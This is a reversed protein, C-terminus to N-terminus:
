VKEPSRKTAEIQIDQATDCTHKKPPFWKPVMSNQCNNHEFPLGINSWRRWHKNIQTLVSSPLTLHGKITLILLWNESGSHCSFCSYSSLPAAPQKFKRHPLISVLDPKTVDAGNMHCLDSESFNLPGQVCPFSLPWVSVCAPCGSLCICM